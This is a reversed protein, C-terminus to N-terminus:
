DLWGMLWLFLSLRTANLHQRLKKLATVLQNRVTQPAVELRQAIETVSLGSERNLLYVQQMQPPLQQIGEQIRQATQRAALIDAPTSAREQARAQLTQYLRGEAAQKRLFNYCQNSVVRIIWARPVEIRALGARHRWIKIFVEQIIEEAATQSQTLKLAFPVLQKNYLHFLQNFAKENGQSILLFLEKEDQMM